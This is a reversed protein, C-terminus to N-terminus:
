VNYVLWQLKSLESYREVFDFIVITNNQGDLYCALWQPFNRQTQARSSPFFVVFDKFTCNVRDLFPGEIEMNDMIEVFPFDIM